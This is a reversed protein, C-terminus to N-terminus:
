LTPAPENVIRKLDAAYFLAVHQPREDWDLHVYYRNNLVKKVTGLQGHDGLGPADVRIRQGVAFQEQEM